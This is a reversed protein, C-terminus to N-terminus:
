VFVHGAELKKRNNRYNKETFGTIGRHLQGSVESGEMVLSLWTIVIECILNINM